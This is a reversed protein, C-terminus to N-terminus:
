NTQKHARLDGAEGREVGGVGVVLLPALKVHGIGNM